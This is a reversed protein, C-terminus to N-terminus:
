ASRQESLTETSPYRALLNRIRVILRLAESRDRQWFNRGFVLGTAGADMAVRAKSLLDDVSTKAGGSLIVPVRGASRVVAHLMQASTFEGDYEPRVPTENKADPWIVKMMDAGLEAAVRAAYDVAYFSTQGGKHRIASGRAYTWVVVPMGYRQADHRVQRFQAFDEAQRPSGVYLTYGVADAGLRVADEVSSNLPSIPEDDAPIDTKGNLKLIM